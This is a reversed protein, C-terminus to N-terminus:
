PSNGEIWENVFGAFAPDFENQSDAWYRGGIDSRLWSRVPAMYSEFTARDLSGSRYQFWQFERSRLFLILMSQEQAQEPDVGIIRALVDPHEITSSLLAADTAIATQRSSGLLMNNTQRTQLALYFLTAVIAVSSVIEAIAALRDLKM